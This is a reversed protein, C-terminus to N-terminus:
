RRPPAVTEGSILKCELLIHLEYLCKADMYGIERYPIQGHGFVSVDESVGDRVRKASASRPPHNKSM